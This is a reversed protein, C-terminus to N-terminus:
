GSASLGREAAPVILGDMLAHLAQVHGDVGRATPDSTMVVTLRLDPAVFVMQGGYGWAFYLPHGRSERIWWGYGYMNGSWPSPAQPTWSTRIWDESLVRRGEHVGGNRYLEGFRFLARPSMLMDNGGFYIGQPDRPWPPLTVGLPQGLYERALELTSKGSARTLLASVLHSSGTSYLMRGGPDDVFPQSIAYGVWDRSTVWRGYNRGSTRELGARMSLLHGVTLTELRPDAGAPARRGLLPLAKQDLGQIVGREIAVGVLASLVTKSASKINVPTDLGPGRFVREVAPQGDRAVIMSRLQPLAAAQQVALNLLAPDFGSTRVPAPASAAATEGIPVEAACAATTLGAALALAVFRSFRTAPPVPPNGM